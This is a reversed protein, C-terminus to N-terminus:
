KVKQPTAHNDRCNTRYSIGFLMWFMGSLMFFGLAAIKAYNDPFLTTQHEIMALMTGVIASGMALVTVIARKM